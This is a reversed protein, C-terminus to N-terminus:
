NVIYLSSALVKFLSLTHRGGREEGFGLGCDGVWRDLSRAPASLRAPFLTATSTATSTPPTVRTLRNSTDPSRSVPSSRPAAALSRSRPAPTTSSPLAAPTTSPWRSSASCTTALPFARPSPPATLRNWQFLSAIDACIEMNSLPASHSVTGPAAPSSPASRRSRSGTPAATLPAPM